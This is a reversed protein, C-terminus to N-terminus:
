NGSNVILPIYTTYTCPATAFNDFQMFGSAASTVGNSPGLLLDTFAGSAMELNTLSDVLVGNLLLDIRGNEEDWKLAIDSQSVGDQLHIGEGVVRVGNQVAWLNIEDDQAGNELSVGFIPTGTLDRGVLIDVEEQATNVNVGRYAFSTVYCALGASASNDLLYAPAGSSLNASVGMTGEMAAMESITIDGVVSLWGALNGSEFNDRLLVNNNANGGMVTLVLSTIEGWNGASDLARVYLTYDGPRWRGGRINIDATVAESGSDFLGDAATLPFGSGFGPDVDVFWEVQTIQASDTVNATLTVYRNAGRPTPNPSAALNAIAPGTKDVTLTASVLDGWNGALDRAHFSILHDGDSLQRITALPIDFYSRELSSNYLADKALLPFGSGDPNNNSDVYDIFGEAEAIFSPDTSDILLRVGNSASNVPKTGNTPNPSLSIFFSDPGLMDVVLDIPEVAGWNGLTDLARVYVTHTGHSLSNITAADITASLSVIPAEANLTMTIGTGPDTVTDIFYEAAVVNVQGTPMDDATAQIVVNKDGNTPSTNLYLSTIVPGDVVLDLITSNVPGWTGNSDMGRVYIAIDGAPLTTLTSATLTAAVNATTSAAITESIGTGPEGLDNLFYEWAVIDLGSTASTDLTASLAVDVNASTPNPSVALSTVLPGGAPATAGGNVEIFTFIGGTTTTDGNNYLQQTGTNYVAYSQNEVADAPIAVLSDITEGAGLTYAVIESLAPLETGNFTYTKLSGDVALLTQHLGLVGLSHEQLGLNITRLLVTHNPATLIKETQSYAKGNIFWYSPQYHSMNFSNPDASNNLAPDLENLVLLAEDDYATESIDYAQNPTTARVVFAGGLGMAVQRGGNPTLGAEYKFTGPSVATFTYTVTEGAAIGTLDPVMEQGTFAIAVTETVIENHFVVNVIDGANVILAPGPFAATGTAVDTFGWINATGGDPLTISGERAWLECTREGVAVEACTTAPLVDAVPMALPQRAPSATARLSRALGAVALLTMVVALLLTHKKSHLKM